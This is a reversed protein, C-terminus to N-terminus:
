RIESIMAVIDDLDARTVHSHTPITVLERVLSDAGPWSRQRGRMREAVPALKALTSPYGPGIGLEGARQQSKFGSLGRRVRLPLRLYGPAADGEMHFPQVAAARVRSLVYQANIRRVSTELSSRHRSRLAAAAAARTISTPPRPEHYTTEGLRLFPLSRPIRYLSPRGLGWQAVLGLVASVEAPFRSRPLNEVYHEAGNRMLVAGGGGGTWGKGRGFSLISITGLSGLVKGTWSAGHGQAADEILVANYRDALAQLPSWPVPIGYLPAIVVVAAGEALVNEVSHLDPALTEPNLDYLSIPANCGVAATAVDYCTYAPLAISAGPRSDRLSVRLALELAQTGSACLLTHESRYRRFLLESLARRPDASLGLGSAAAALAASGPIPSYVALQHRIRV